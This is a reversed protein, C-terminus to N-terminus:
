IKENKIRELQRDLKSDINADIITTDRISFNNM